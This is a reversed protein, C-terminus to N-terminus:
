QSATTDRRQATITKATDIMSSQASREREYPQSKEPDGTMRQISAGIRLWRRGRRAHRVHLMSYVCPRHAVASCYAASRPMKGFILARMYGCGM